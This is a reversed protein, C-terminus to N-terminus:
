DQAKERSKVVIPQYRKGSVERQAQVRVQHLHRQGAVWPGALAVRDPLEGGPELFM